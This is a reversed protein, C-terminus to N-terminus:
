WDLTDIFRLFGDGLAVGILALTTLVAFLRFKWQLM